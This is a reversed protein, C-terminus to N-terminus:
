GEFFPFDERHAQVVTGHRYAGGEHASYHCSGCLVVCNDLANAGGAKVHLM